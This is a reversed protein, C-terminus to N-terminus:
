QRLINRLRLQAPRRKVQSFYLWILALIGNSFCLQAEWIRLQLSKWHPSDVASSRLATFGCAVNQPFPLRAVAERSGTPAGCHADRGRDLVWPPLSAQSTELRAQLQM